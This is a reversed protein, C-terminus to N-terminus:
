RLLLYGNVQAPISASILSGSVRGTGQASLLWLLHSWYEGLQLYQENLFLASQEEPSCLPVHYGPVM